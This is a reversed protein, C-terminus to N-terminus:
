YWQFQSFIGFLTNLAFDEAKHCQKLQWFLISQNYASAYKPGQWNDFISSKESFLQRSIAGLYLSRNQSGGLNADTLYTKCIPFLPSLGIIWTKSRCSHIMCTLLTQYLLLFTTEIQPLKPWLTFDFVACTNKCCLSFRQVMCYFTLKKNLEYVSTKVSSFNWDILCM